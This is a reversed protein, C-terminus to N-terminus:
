EHKWPDGSSRCIAIARRKQGPFKALFPNRFVNIDYDDASVYGAKGGRMQELLGSFRNGYEIALSYTGPLTSVRGGVEGIDRIM